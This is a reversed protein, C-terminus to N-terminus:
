FSLDLKYEIDVQRGNLKVLPTSLISRSILGYIPDFTDEDNIRLGDFLVTTSGSTPTVQIGIKTINSKVPSGVANAFVTGMSVQTIKDGTTSGNIQAYYYSTDTTYLKVRFSSLSSDMQRYAITLSDLSSYGSLDIAAGTTYENSANVQSSMGLLIDGIRSNSNVQQASSFAFDKWDAPNNFDSLFKSDYSNSTSKLAPYLGIEKVIGSVDQPLTTKFVASYTFIPNSSEDVGDQQIDTSSLTVPLRYFEFGLRTDNQTAATSDIGIAIEKSAANINGAVVNTLYRKGFKTLINSSRYIEKGDEYFIYTGKIM